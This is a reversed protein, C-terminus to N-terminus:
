CKDIRMQELICENKVNYETCKVNSANRTTLFEVIEEEDYGKFASLIPDISVVGM